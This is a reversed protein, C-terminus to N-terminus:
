ETVSTDDDGDVSDNAITVVECALESLWQRRDTPIGLTAITRDAFVVMASPTIPTGAPIDATADAVLDAWAEPPFKQQIIDAVTDPALTGILPALRPLQPRIAAIWLRDNLAAPTASMAQSARVPLQGKPPQQPIPQRKVIENVTKIGEAALALTPDARGGGGLMEAVELLEKLQSVGPSQEPKLVAAMRTFQEVPDAKNATAATMMATMATSFGTMMQQQMEVSRMMMTMMMDSVVNGSAQAAVGGRPARPNRPPITPDIEVLTRGGKQERNVFVRLHYRGGGFTDALTELSFGEAPIEGVHAPVGTDPNVRQIRVRAGSGVEALIEDIETDVRDRSEREADVVREITDTPPLTPIRDLDEVVEVRETTRKRAAM